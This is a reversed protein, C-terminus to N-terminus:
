PAQTAGWIITTDGKQCKPPRVGLAKVHGNHANVCGYVVLTTTSTSSSTTTSTSTAAPNTTSSTSTTPTTSTSTTAGTGNVLHCPGVTCLDAYGRGSGDAPDTYDLGNGANDYAFFQILYDGYPAYQPAVTDYCFDADLTGPNFYRSDNVLIGSGSAFFNVYQIGSLDDHVTGCWHLTVPGTGTDFASPTVSFSTLVPATTDQQASASGTFLAFAVLLMRGMTTGESPCSRGTLVVNFNYRGTSARASGVTGLHVRGM